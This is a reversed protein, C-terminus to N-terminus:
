LGAGKASAELAQEKALEKELEGSDMEEGIEKMKVWLKSGIHKLLALSPQPHKPKDRAMGVGHIM